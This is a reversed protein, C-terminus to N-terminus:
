ALYKRLGQLEEDFDGAIIIDDVYVILIAIKKETSHKVLLTHDVHCQIDM